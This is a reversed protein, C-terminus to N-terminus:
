FVAIENWKQSTYVNRDIACKKKGEISANCFSFEAAVRYGVIERDWETKISREQFGRTEEEITRTEIGTICRSICGDESPLEIYINSRGSKNMAVMTHGMGRM